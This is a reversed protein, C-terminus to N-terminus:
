GATPGVRRRLADDVRRALEDDSLEAPGLTEAGSRPHGGETWDLYAMWEGTGSLRLQQLVVRVAYRTGRVEVQLAGQETRTVRAEYGLAALLRAVGNVSAPLDAREPSAVPVQEWPLACLFRAEGPFTTESASPALADRALAAVEAVAALVQEVMGLLQQRWTPDNVDHGVTLAALLHRRAAEVQRAVVAAQAGDRLGLPLVPPYQPATSPLDPPMTAERPQSLTPPTHSDGPAARATTPRGALSNRAAELLERVGDAGDAALDLLRAVETATRTTDSEEAGHRSGAVAYLDAALSRCGGALDVVAGALRALRQEQDGDIRPHAAELETGPRGQPPDPEPAVSWDVPEPAAHRDRVPDPHVTDVGSRHHPAEAWPRHETVPGVSPAVPGGTSWGHDAVVLETSPAPRLPEPTPWTPEPRPSWDPHAPPSHWGPDGGGQPAVGFASPEDWDPQSLSPQTSAPSPGSPPRAWEAPLGYGPYPNAEGIGNGSHQAHGNGHGNVHGGNHTHGNVHRDDPHHHGNLHEMAADPESEALHDPYQPEAPAAHRGRRGTSMAQEFPEGM